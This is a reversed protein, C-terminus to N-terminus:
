KEIETLKPDKLITAKWRGEKEDFDLRAITAIKEKTKKLGPIKLLKNVLEIREKDEKELAKEIGTHGAGILIAVEPKENKNILTKAITKMKQAMLHNRLTLIIADREPHIKEGSEIVSKAFKQRMSEEDDPFSRLVARILADGTLFMGGLAKLFQRRNLKLEGEGSKNLLNALLAFGTGLELVQLGTRLLIIEDALYTDTFFLPKNKKRATEIFAKQTKSEALDQLKKEALEPKSYDVQPYTVELVLGNFNGLIEPKRELSEYVIRFTAEPTEIEKVGKPSKEKEHPVRKEPNERFRM